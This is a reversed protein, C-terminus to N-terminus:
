SSTSSSTCSKTRMLGRALELLNHLRIQLLPAADHLGTRAVLNRTIEAEMLFGRGGDETELLAGLYEPMGALELYQGRIINIIDNLTRM